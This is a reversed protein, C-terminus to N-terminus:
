TSLKAAEEGAIRGLSTATLLGNGALYGAAGSGSIGRAAGGGAFLNSFPTGDERLVRAKTDVELGGQTHFIAGTVKVALYPANLRHRPEFTRGFEDPTRAAICNEISTLTAELNSQDVGIADCLTVLDAAELIAGASKADRYDNFQSMVQEIRKDFITWATKGEQSLVTAAQESYGRAENSFRQGSKNVQFGGEMISPWLIPISHGAALGAHGQYADMDALKAGISAGWEAALGQSAPHTHPVANKLEPIHKAVLEASAAFGCCALILAKCGIIESTGDPRGYRVGRVNNSEDVLLGAAVAETLISVGKNACASELSAMLEEGTRNQTGYMRRASHGPYTFGEVLTLPILHDDRLWRVTDASIDCLRKVIKPDAGSKNKTMIDKFFLDPNDEIEQENQEMTGAAPILGTSMSTTGLPTKSQELVVVEAGFDSASLAATLGCGGAGIILVDTVYIDESTQGPWNEITPTM